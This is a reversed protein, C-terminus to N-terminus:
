EGIVAAFKERLVKMKLRSVLIKQEKIIVFDKGISEIYNLNILVGKHCRFFNESELEQELNKMNMYTSYEGGTTYVQVKRGITEICYISEIRVKYDSYGSRIWIYNERKKIIKEICPGIQQQFREYEVPKVLYRTASVEYGEQMYETLGTIFVIEVEENFSRIQRATEMGTCGQMQIDLFIIEAQSPYNNLLIEGSEFELIEYTIKFNSLLNELYSVIRERQLKEDECVICTLINM